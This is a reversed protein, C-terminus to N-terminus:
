YGETNVQRMKQHITSYVIEQAETANVIRANSHIQPVRGSINKFYVQAAPCLQNEFLTKNMDKIVKKPPSTYLHFDIDEKTNTEHAICEEVFKYLASINEKPRFIGQLFTRNHFCIRIAVNPYKM